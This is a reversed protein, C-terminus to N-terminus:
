GNGDIRVEAKSLRQELGHLLEKEPSEDLKSDYKRLWILKMIDDNIDLFTSGPILTVSDALIVKLTENKLITKAEIIDVRAGFIIMKSVYYASYFVNWLLYFPYTTLKSFDIGSIKELPLAMNIFVLCLISFLIGSGISLWTLNEVLIIWITTLALVFFISMKRM